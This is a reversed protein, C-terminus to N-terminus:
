SRPWCRPEFARAGAPKASRFSLPPLLAALVPAAIVVLLAANM